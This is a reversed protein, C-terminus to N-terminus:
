KTAVLIINDEAKHIVKVEKFGANKLLKIQKKDTFPIDLHYMEDKNLSEMKEHYEKLFKEEEEENSAIYDGEIYKGGNKLSNRIKIYLNLKDDELWHHMTMVSVAYDYEEEKLPYSLYSDKVINIQSLRDSYKEKLLDLMDKSLDIGTIISNPAKKFIGKFELGTGCGLDLVKIMDETPNIPNSVMDYFQDFSEVSEKMHDDYGSARVEFFKGMEEAKKAKDSMYSQNKFSEKNNSM